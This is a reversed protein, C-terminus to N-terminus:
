SFLNKRCVEFFFPCYTLECRAEFHTGTKHSFKDDAKTTRPTISWLRM